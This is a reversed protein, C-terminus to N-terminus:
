NEDSRKGRSCIKERKSSLKEATSLEKEKRRNMTTLPIDKGPTSAGGPQFPATTDDEDEDDDDHELLSYEDGFGDM